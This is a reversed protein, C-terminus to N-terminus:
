TFLNLRTKWVNPSMALPSFSIQKQFSSEPVDGPDRLVHVRQVPASKVTFRAHFIGARLPRGSAGASPRSALLGARGLVRGRAIRGGDRRSGPRSGGEM